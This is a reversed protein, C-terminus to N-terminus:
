FQKNEDPSNSGGSFHLRYQSPTVGFRRIFARRLGEERRFGCIVAIEELSHKGATMIERALDLRLTELYRSPTMGTRLKFMRSFNRESMASRAAMQEVTIPDKLNEFLWRHLDNFSKGAAAQAKLPTSFQSQSGPRRFYIVLLRATEVAVALGHDEEVIALALDIGSAVGASTYINGDRTFIADASVQIDPYAASLEDTCCWHSTATRNQLLGAEALLFAGKCVSVVRGSQVAQRKLYQMLASDSLARDATDGGPVVLIEPPTSGTFDTDAVLCM